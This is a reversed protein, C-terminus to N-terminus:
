KFSETLMSEFVDGFYQDPNDMYNQAKEDIKEIDEYLPRYEQSGKVKRRMDMVEESTVIGNQVLLQLILQTEVELDLLAKIENLGNLAADMVHNINKNLM